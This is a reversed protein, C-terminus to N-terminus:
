VVKWLHLTTLVNLELRKLQLTWWESCWIYRTWWEGRSAPHVGYRNSVEYANLSTVCWLLTDTVPDFQPVTNTIIILKRTTPWFTFSDLFFWYIEEINTFRHLKTIAGVHCIARILSNRNLLTHVIDSSLKIFVINKQKYNM